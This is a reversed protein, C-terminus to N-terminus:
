RCYQEAANFRPEYDWHLKNVVNAAHVLHRKDLSAQLRAEIEEPDFRALILGKLRDRLAQHAPDDALNHWEGPDDALNFLQMEGAGEHIYILKHDGDRAMFCPAYIGNTHSESFTVRDLDRGEILPLLSQSDLSLREEVGALDLVTPVIDIINVPTAIQKGAGYGDPFHAILPVRASWDYLSRKQVMNKEALMDGHDATFLIVTNERLGTEELVRLLEGVQRDVFSILGYYSRRLAYLSEPARIDIRDTGHYANLWRDMSSYTEEMNAPYHPIEIEAGEYLDWFEQTVQFPDHPCHFSVSLFFPEDSGLDPRSPRGACARGYLYEVARFQTETDYALFQTWPRVGVQPLAYGRAHVRRDILREKPKRKNTPLMSMAAPYIDTTLRRRYGHLQDAGIYHLKGSAVTDYGANTLYHQLTPEDDDFPAANDWAGITSIYQGTALAARAPACLPCPSYAADFRVGTEVLRDLNPTKVVPHGYAGMLMPILQDAMILLVNPKDTNPM